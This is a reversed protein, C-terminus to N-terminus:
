QRLPPGPSPTLHAGGFIEAFTFAKVARGSADEITMRWGLDVRGQRVDDALMELVTRVGQAVAADANACESGEPDPLARVGHHLHFFYRPM